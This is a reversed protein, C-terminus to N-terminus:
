DREPMCYTHVRWARGHTSRDLFQDSTTGEYSVKPNIKKLCFYNGTHFSNRKLRSLSAAPTAKKLRIYYRATHITQTASPSATLTLNSTSIFPHLSLTLPSLLAEMTYSYCRKTKKRFDDVLRDATSSNKNREIGSLRDGRAAFGATTKKQLVVPLHVRM